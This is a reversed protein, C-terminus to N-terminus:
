AGLKRSKLKVQGYLVEVTGDVYTVKVDGAFSGPGSIDGTQPQWGFVGSTPTIITCSVTENGVNTQTSGKYLYLAVTCNTLNIITGDSRQCTILFQPATNQEVVNLTAM